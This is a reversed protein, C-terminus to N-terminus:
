AEARLARHSVVFRFAARRVPFADRAALALLDLVERPLVADRFVLSLTQDLLDAVVAFFQVGRSLLKRLLQV